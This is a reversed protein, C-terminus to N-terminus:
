NRHAACLLGNNYADMLQHTPEGISWAYSSGAVNSGLPYTVLWANGAAISPSVCDLNKILTRAM